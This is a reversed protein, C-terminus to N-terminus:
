KNLLARLEPALSDTWPCRRHPRAPLLESVDTRLDSYLRVTGVAGAAAALACLALIAVRHRDALQVFAHPFNM